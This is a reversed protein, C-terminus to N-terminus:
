AIDPGPPSERLGEWLELYKPRVYPDLGDAFEDPLGLTEILAVVDAFDKLRTVGGTMGSALKLEVLKPLALYAVGDIRTSVDAPDPFAVPKPKGDGPFQGTVLFEIRVGNETDRLQKSGAFPPVYGLGELKEHITKLGDPTVLLDVDVTLRRFGHAELAMGGVIAYPTGLDDLRRAIKRLTRFVEDDKRFHRDGEDMAWGRDLRLRQEYLPPILEAPVIAEGPLPGMRGSDSM